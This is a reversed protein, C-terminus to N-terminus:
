VDAHEKLYDIIKQLVIISEKCHGIVSNCNMCLFKRIKKTQHSHDLHLGRKEPLKQCIYCLDNQRKKLEKYQDFTIGYQRKCASNRDMAKAKDPYKLRWKRDAERFYEPNKLRRERARKKYLDKNDQYM